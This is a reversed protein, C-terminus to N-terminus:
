AAREYIKAIEEACASWRFRAAQRLGKEVLTHRLAADELVQSLATDFDQDSYPDILVAADGAVEPMSAVNSTIVPVGCRMAELIPLGFGEYLSPYVFVDALNYLALLDADDVYGTLVVDDQVGISEILQEVRQGGWTKQGVLVLKHRNGSRHCRRAFARVLRELNKRPQLNGVGLIFPRTVGLRAQTEALRGEDAIKTFFDSVGEMAVTIRDDAIGYRAIIEAKSFQSITIVHAARRASLPILARMRARELPHFYEPHFEYSIDHVTVVYPCPMWPPAVYQFHALDIRDRLLAIPFSLPIRISPNHPRLRRLRGRWRVHDFSREPLTHYFFYELGGRNMSSLEEVLNRVYTENGTQRSGITHADIGIRM